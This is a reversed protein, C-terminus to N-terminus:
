EHRVEDLPQLCAVKNDPVELLDEYTAKPRDIRSTPMLGM